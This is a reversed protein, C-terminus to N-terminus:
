KPLKRSKMMVERAKQAALRIENWHQDTKLLDLTWLSEKGEKSMEALLRDVDKIADVEESSLFGGDESLNEKVVDDFELALEDVLPLVGLSNLYSEQEDASASLRELCLIIQSRLNKM